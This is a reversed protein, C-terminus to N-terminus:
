DRAAFRLLRAARQTLYPGYLVGPQGVIGFSSVSALRSGNILWGGGSAGAEMECGIGIPRPPRVSEDTDVIPSSCGMMRGGSFFNQPYGFARYQHSRGANPALKAAGIRGQISRGGLRALEVAAYDYSYGAWNRPLYFARWQWKGYPADGHRYAPIFVFKRAWGTSRTRVCHAATLLMSRTRTRVVTASCSFNGGADRAFVKGTIRNPYVQPDAVQYTGDPEAGRAADAHWGAAGAEARMRLPRPEAAHMREPTWYDRVAEHSAGDGRHHAVTAGVTAPTALM